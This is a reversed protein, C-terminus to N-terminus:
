DRIIFVEEDPKVMQYQERAIKELNERDSNLVELKKQNSEKEITYFDIEHELQKIQHDYSIRKFLTNENFFLFLLLFIGGAVWYKNLQSKAVKAAGGAQELISKAKEAIKEIQKM